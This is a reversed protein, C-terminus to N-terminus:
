KKAFKTKLYTPPQLYNTIKQANTKHTNRYLYKKSFYTSRFSKTNQQVFSFPNKEGEAGILM